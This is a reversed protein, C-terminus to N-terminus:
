PLVLDEAWQALGLISGVVEHNKAPNMEATGCGSSQNKHSYICVMMDDDGGDLCLAGGGFFFYSGWFERVWKAASRGRRM